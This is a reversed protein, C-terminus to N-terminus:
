KSKAGRIPFRSTSVTLNPHNNIYAPKEPACGKLPYSNRYVVSTPLSPNVTTFSPWCSVHMRLDGPESVLFLVQSPEQCTVNLYNNSKPGVFKVTWKKFWSFEELICFFNTPESNKCAKLFSYFHTHYPNLKISVNEMSVLSQPFTNLYVQKM